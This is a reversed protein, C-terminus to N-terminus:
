PGAIIARNKSFESSDGSIINTATASVTQGQLQGLLPRSSNCTFPANGNANFDSSTIVETDLLRIGEGHASAPAKNALFCQVVFDQSADSSLRGSITTLNTSNSRTASTIVPFNQLNNPGTDTDDSDNAIVGNANESGGILDMGLEDNNYISNSLVHNGESDNLGFSSISVGDGGNHAIRNAAGRLTGGIANLDTGDQITVGDQSNGVNGTGTATTGIYNGEIRTETAVDGSVVVGSEDDGSIVNRAGASRGGITNSGGTIHVGNYLNGLDATGDATTGIYNGEVKTDTSVTGIFLGTGDNGSIVNRMEPQTGGITNSDGAVYVGIGNGQDTIGNRNVGIFNGEVRNGAAGVRLLQIGYDDFRRIILGKITCDSADIRLGPVVSGANAVGDLQINILADNGEALSNPRAGTQTYGDITVTETIIPLV